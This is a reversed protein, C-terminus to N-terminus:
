VEPQTCLLTRNLSLYGKGRFINRLIGNANGRGRYLAKWCKFIRPAAVSRRTRISRHAECREIHTYGRVLWSLRVSTLSRWAGQPTLAYQCRNFQDLKLSRQTRAAADLTAGASHMPTKRLGFLAVSTRRRCTEREMRLDQGASPPTTRREHLCSDCKLYLEYQGFEDALKEVRFEKGM